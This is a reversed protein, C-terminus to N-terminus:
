LFWGKSVLGVLLLVDLPFFVSSVLKRLRQFWLWKLISTSFSIKSEQADPLLFCYLIYKLCHVVNQLVWVISMEFADILSPVLNKSLKCLFPSPYEATLWALLMSDFMRETFSPISNPLCGITVLINFPIKLVLGASGRYIQMYSASITISNRFDKGHQSSIVRLHSVKFNTVSKANNDLWLHWVNFENDISCISMFMWCTM